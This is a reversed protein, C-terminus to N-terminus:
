RQGSVFLDLGHTDAITGLTQARQVSHSFRMEWFSALAWGAQQFKRRQSKFVTYDDLDKFRHGEELEIWCFM